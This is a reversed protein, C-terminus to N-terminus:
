VIRSAIRTQCQLPLRPSDLLPTARYLRVLWLTANAVNRWLPPLSSARKANHLGCGCYFFVFSFCLLFLSGATRKWGPREQKASVADDPARGGARGAGGRGRGADGVWTAPAPLVRGPSAQSARAADQGFLSSFVVSFM